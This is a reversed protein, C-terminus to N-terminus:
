IRLLDSFSDLVFSVSAPCEKTYGYSAWAFSVGARSAATADTPSDGVYLVSANPEQHMGVLAKLLGAPSPKKAAYECTAFHHTMGLGRLSPEVLWKPLNTVVGMAIHRQSLCYLVESVDPYLRLKAISQSCMLSFRSSSLGFERALCVVNEGARLREVIKQESLGSWAQLSAAYWPQSDWVTGDLDFLLTIAGM